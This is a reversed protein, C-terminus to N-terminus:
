RGQTVYSPLASSFMVSVNHPHNIASRAMSPSRHQPAPGPSLPGGVGQSGFATKRQISLRGKVQLETGGLCTGQSQGQIGSGAELSNADRIGGWGVWLKTLWQQDQPRNAMGLAERAAQVPQGRALSQLSSHRGEAGCLQTVSGEAPWERGRPTWPGEWCTKGTCRPRGLTGRQPAAPRPWTM